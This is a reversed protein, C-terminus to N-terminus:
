PPFPIEPNAVLSAHYEDHEEMPTIVREISTARISVDNGSYPGFLIRDGAEVEKVPIRGRQGTWEVQSGVYLM